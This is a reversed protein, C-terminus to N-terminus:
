RMKKVLRLIGYLIWAFACPILLMSTPMCIILWAWNKTVMYLTLSGATLFVALFTPILKVAVRKGKMCLVAQVAFYVGAILLFLPRKM